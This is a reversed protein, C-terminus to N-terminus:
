FVRRVFRRVAALHHAGAAASMAPAVEGLYLHGLLEIGCYDMLGEHYLADLARVTGRQRLEAVSAEATTIIVGQKGSLIPGDKSAGVAATLVRDIYGKLMAPFGSWWLPAILTVADAARLANLEIRIDRPLRGRAMTALDRASLVPDFNQAYLDRCAVDHGRESLAATYAEVVAHNFSKARPHAAIVLHHL